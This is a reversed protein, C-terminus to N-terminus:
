FLLEYFARHTHTDPCAAARSILCPSRHNACHWVWIYYLIILLIPNDHYCIPCFCCTITEKNSLASIGLGERTELNESHIGWHLLSKSQPVLSNSKGRCDISWCITSLDHTSCGCGCTPRADGKLVLPEKSHHCLLFMEQRWFLWAISSDKWDNTPAGSFKFLKGEMLTVM